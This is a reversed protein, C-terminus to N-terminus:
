VYKKPKTRIENRKKDSENMNEEQERVRAMLVDVDIEPLIAESYITKIGSFVDLQFGEPYYQVCGMELETMIPRLQPPVLNANQPPLILMLQQFPTFPSGLTFQIDNVDRLVNNLVYVVDSPLPCTRFRYNWTWSPVGKFYYKLTFELSELYNIVMEVRRENYEDMNDRSVGLYYQYFQEKWVEKNLDYDIKKFEEHYQGFLPHDPSCVELHDYRTLEIEYPTKTEESEIRRPERFGGMLRKILRYEEKMSRDEKKALEVFLDRLFSHNIRPESNVDMPDYDILYHTHNKKIENYITKLVKLGDRKVRMYSLAPVFDNGVLFTLFNYDNLLRIPNVNEFQNEKMLETEWGSRLADINFQIFEFSGFSEQINRDNEGETRRIIHVNSKHTMTSLVILDADKSDIYVVDDVTRQNRMLSRLIPMIKHEAEGPNNSTSLVVEMGTNHRSFGKNKMVRELEETMREMFQTGPAINASADWSEETELHLRERLQEIFLNKQIGKYRRSRQQVMKARPAPGDIAFYTCKKPQIVDCILHQLHTILEQIINGELTIKNINRGRIMGSVRKYADYILANFDLLLYDCNTNGPEIGTLINKYAKNRVLSIFLSPVGM